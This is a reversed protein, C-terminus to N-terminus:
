YELHKLNDPDDRVAAEGTPHLHHVAPLITKQQRKKNTNFKNKETVDNDPTLGLVEVSPNRNHLM